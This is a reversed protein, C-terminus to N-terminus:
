RRLMAKLADLSGDTNKDLEGVTINIIQAGTDADYGNSEAKVQDDGYNNVVVKVNGGSSMHNSINRAFNSYTTDNLPMVAESSSGEGVMALTPATVVGGDAFPKIGLYAYADNTPILENGATLKNSSGGGFLAMVFRAAAMKLAIQAITKLILNGVDKVMNKMNGFNDFCDNFISNMGSDMSKMFDATMGATSEHAEEWISYFAEMQETEGKWDMYGQGDEDLTRSFMGQDHNNIAFQLQQEFAKRYAETRKQAAEETKATYWDEIAAMSEKDDKSKAVEKIKEERQKDLSEVTAEYQADAAAKFDGTIQANISKTETLMQTLADRQAKVIKDTMVDKYKELQNNLLNITDDSVGAAKISTIDQQKKRINDELAQMQSEYNTGNERTIDDSMSKLLEMARDRAENLKNIRDQVARQADNMSATATQGGTFKNMSIIGTVSGYWDQTAESDGHVVGHDVGGGTNSAYHGGQGDAIGVHDADGWVYIDGARAEYKAPDMLAGRRDAEAVLDPAWLSDLGSVGADKAISSVFGACMSAGLYEGVHQSALQAMVEGVPVTETYTKEVPAASVAAHGTESGPGGEDDGAGNQLNQMAEAIQRNTEEMAAKISDDGNEQGRAKDKGGYYETNLQAELETGHEVPTEYKYPIGGNEFDGAEPDVERQFWQGDIQKYAQGNYNVVNETLAKETQAKRYNAFANFAMVTAAAVGYWGGMLLYVAKTLRGVGSIARGAMTTMRNGAVTSQVGVTSVAKGTVSAAATVKTLAAQQASGSAEASATIGAYANILYTRLAAAERATREERYVAYRGYAETFEKVSSTNSLFYKAWQNKEKEAQKELLSVTRDISRQRQRNLSTSGLLGASDEDLSGLFSEVKGGVSAAARVAKYAGVVGLLGKTFLALEERNQKVWSAAEGLGSIVSPLYERAVPALAAGAAMKLQNTQITLLDMEKKMQDLEEVNIGISKVSAAREAAERYERLTGVLSMGRSGLTNLIFEQGYGAQTAKNYGDALAEFQQNVSLLKGSSDTLSVGVADLMSQVKGASEGGSMLTKDLRALSAAATQVDGGALSMTRSFASAESTSIQLNQSLEKVNHGADVVNQVMATLGFMGGAVTIFNSLRGMIKDLSGTTGTLANQFTTIPNINFTQNISTKADRLGAALGSADAGIVLQFKAQAM